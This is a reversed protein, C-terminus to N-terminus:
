QPQQAQAARIKAKLEADSLGSYPRPQSPAVSMPIKPEFGKLGNKDRAYNELRITEKVIEQNKNQMFSILQRRANPNTELQPILGQIFERDANSFGSGLKGGLTQLIVDGAVKQYEQSSVLKNTDSPAALGLTVLLNTAGVRGTAFQGTILQNDPLAALKNLSNITSVATDRVTIATDVRDADKKGLQKVFESEGAPLTVGGVKTESTKRDVGGTFPVRVQKGTEDKKYIFQLDNNVDLYVPERTAEAVGIEKINAGVQKAKDTLRALEVSYKENYQASGEPGATLALAAANKQEPTKSDPKEKSILDALTRQYVQNFQPTGREAVSGAFALANRQEPTMKEATRQQALAMESQAQRAYQALAMAGQQDGAQALMQAGQLISEPNTQDIQQAIANRTSILKLQPDEIGLAGAFGRGLQGVSAGLQARAAAGPDLQALEYSRKLDQQYQQGQYAQPTMGFLGEVISAM